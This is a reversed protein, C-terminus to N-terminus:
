EEAVSEDETDPDIGAARLYEETAQELERLATESDEGRAVAKRRAAEGADRAEARISEEADIADKRELRRIFREVQGATDVIRQQGTYFPHCASCVDTSLTERTSGTTWTNGCACVVTSEDFYKPHIKKKM